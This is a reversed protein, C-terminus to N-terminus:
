PGVERYTGHGWRVVHRSDGWRVAWEEPDIVLEKAICRRLEEEGGEFVGAECLARLVAGRGAEVLVAYRQGPPAETGGIDGGKGGGSRGSSSSDSLLGGGRGQTARLQEAAAMEQLNAVPLLVM